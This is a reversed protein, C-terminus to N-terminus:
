VMKPKGAARTGAAGCGQECKATDTSQKPWQLLHAHVVTSNQDADGWM